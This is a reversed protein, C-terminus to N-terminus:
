ERQNPRLFYTLLFPISLVKGFRVLSDGTKGFHVSESLWLIASTPYAVLESVGLRHSAIFALDESTPIM